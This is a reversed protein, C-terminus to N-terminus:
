QWLLNTKIINVVINILYRKMKDADKAFRNEAIRLDQVDDIEYWRDGSVPFAKLNTSDLFSIVKLVQEYYENEGYAQRYANLFPVYYKCSFEKSFKYINVTKYYTNIDNWQFNAKGLIGSINREEDLLTVTGDMWSEFQSVVALNNDKHNVIESIITPDYILDSELLITDDECLQEAALFLSYINNTKDYIPNDVFEIEMEPYKGSIFSKVENGKYGVVLVLKHINATLLSEIAYELLTKGNVPLMCKTSNKTYKGLRKGMGAALMLGQM